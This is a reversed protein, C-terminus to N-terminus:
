CGGVLSQTLCSEALGLLDSDIFTPQAHDPPAIRQRAIALASADHDAGVVAGTSGVLRALLYTVDGSGCGVDLVRMGERIGADTLLRETFDPTTNSM